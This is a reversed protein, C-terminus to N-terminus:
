AADASRLMEDVSAFPAFGVSVRRRNVAQLKEEPTLADGSARLGADRELRARERSEAVLQERGAMYEERPVLPADLIWKYEVVMLDGIRNCAADVPRVLAGPYLRAAINEPISGDDAARVVECYSVTRMDSEKIMELAESEDVDDPVTALHTVDRTVPRLFVMGNIPGNLGSHALAAASEPYKM